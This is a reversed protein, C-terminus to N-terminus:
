GGQHDSAVLWEGGTRRHLLNATTVAGAGFRERLEDVAADLQPEEVAEDM